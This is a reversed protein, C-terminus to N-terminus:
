PASAPAGPRDPEVYDEDVYCWYWDRASRYARVIPHGTKHYHATAHKGPSSDCCGVHGCIQCLRLEVWRMGKQQCEVCGDGSPKVNRMQGIHECKM